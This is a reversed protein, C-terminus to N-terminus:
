DKEILYKEALNGIYLSLFYITIVQIPLMCVKLTARSLLVSMFAKSYLFHIMLSYIPLDIIGLVIISSIILRIILNKGKFYKGDKSYLLLGYVLGSLASTITFGVFYAGFPFLLAGILDGLGAIATSYKPGLLIASLMIPIYSFSIVLIPTKISVFRSFVILIALLLGSLVIKKSKSM